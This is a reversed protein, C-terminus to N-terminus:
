RDGDRAEFNPRRKELFAGIGEVSDPEALNDVMAKAALAYAVDLPKDIQEYFARKGIALTPTSRAAIESALAQAEALANGAAVVRNILGFGEAEAASYLKATLAMEMARKRSVTRGVAVLPSSCFLGINVGPLAFRATEGAVALDCSAVLQCGAATAVGDVAAVVPKPLAVIAQMLAACRAMIHQYFAQGRDLDNRHAQIERLDHGACFAPGEGAVVVVRAKDDKALDAFAVILTDMMQLSLANRNQPAALTLTAVGEGFEQRILQPASATSATM